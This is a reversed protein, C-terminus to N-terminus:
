EKEASAAHSQQVQDNQFNLQFLHFIFDNTVDLQPRPKIKFM